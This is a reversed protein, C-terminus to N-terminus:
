QKMFMRFLRPIDNFMVVALLLLIFALGARMLYEKTRLSLAGGKVQEAVLVVIQGGDLLPVPLLNFVALNISLLGLLTFLDAWGRKAAHAAAGGIAIPGGLEKFSAGGTALQRLSRLVLGGANWTLAAGQQIAGGWDLPTQSTPTLALAGIQGVVTDRKPVGRQKKASDPRMVLAVPKGARIVDMHLEKGPSSEIQTVVERWSSVPRGNVAVISDGGDLGSRQAPQGPMVDDIVPPIFYDISTILLIRSSDMPPGVPVSVTGRQTRLVLTDAPLSEVAAAFDNWSAVPRAGVALITDGARLDALQPMSAPANVGGVVHTLLVPRGEAKALGTFLVFGLVVNMTVGAVLIFFRAFFNKSEFWRDAPVPRPGFPAMGNPDWYRPKKADGEEVPQEAGGEIFAMTEDDRSAMRVYGGLPVAAIMYETEGWKRSILASGFGISFRPAYVGMLKAAIFHGLEHIFVVLGFVLAIAGASRLVDTV